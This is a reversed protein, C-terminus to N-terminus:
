PPASPAPPAATPGATDRVATDPVAPRLSELHVGDARGSVVVRDIQDGKLAIDIRTGRSYNLAPPGAREREYLHTLARAAGRALLQRLEPSSRGASDAVPEFRATITDGTIWDVDAAASTSDPPPQSTSFARGFARIERLVEEPADLALSDAQVTNRTSVAHPRSSDGWAFAQQLRRRELALHITDATLRWDEGSAEGAGLARVVRIERQALTFHIRRGVLAYPRGSKGDIRPSGVMVGFGAGEDLAMSDARGALDSRDVTARGAAWIRDNGRIRVRDGVIVYPEGSDPRSRYELTPRSTAYLEATDRLGHAARRYTLNPGRLASGTARNVAVVNRHAEFLEQRMFYAATTADLAFASDRIRVNGLMDFRGPGAFWAVSDAVLTSGTGQCHAWVGGGAYFNTQGPAAEVQRGENGVSDIAVVCPRGARGTDPSAQPAQPLVALLLLTGTM